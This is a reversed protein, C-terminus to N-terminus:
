PASSHGVGQGCTEGLQAQAVQHQELVQLREAREGLGRCAHVHRLRRDRLRYLRQLLREALRQDHAAARPTTRERRRARRREDMQADRAVLDLGRQRRCRGGAREVQADARQRERQHRGKGSASARRRLRNGCTCTRRASSVTGFRQRWISAPSCSAITQRSGASLSCCRSGFADRVPRYAVLRQHQDAAARM